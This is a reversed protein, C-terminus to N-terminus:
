VDCIGRRTEDNHTYYQALRFLLVELENFHIPTHLFAHVGCALAEDTSLINRNENWLIIMTEPHARHFTQLLSKEISHPIIALPIPGEPHELSRRLEPTTMSIVEHGLDTLFSQLTKQLIDPDSVLYIRLTHRIDSNM